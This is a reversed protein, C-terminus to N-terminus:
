NWITSQFYDTICNHYTWDYTQQETWLKVTNQLVLFANSNSARQVQKPNEPLEFSRMSHQLTASDTFKLTSQAQYWELCSFKNDRLPEITLPICNLDLQFNYVVNNKNLSFVSVSLSHSCVAVLESAFLVYKATIGRLVIDDISPDSYQGSKGSRSSSTYYSNFELLSFSLSENFISLNFYEKIYGSKKGTAKAEVWEITFNRKVAKTQRNVVISQIRTEEIQPIEMSRLVEKVSNEVATEM